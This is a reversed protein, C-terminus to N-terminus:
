FSVSLSTRGSDVTCKASGSEVGVAFWTAHFLLEMVASVVTRLASMLPLLAAPRSTQSIAFSTLTGLDLWNLKPMRRRNPSTATERVYTPTLLQSPSTKLQPLKASLDSPEQQRPPPYPCPNLLMM